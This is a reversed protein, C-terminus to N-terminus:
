ELIDGLDPSTPRRAPAQSPHCIVLDGDAFPSMRIQLISLSTDGSDARAKYLAARAKAPDSTQLLLGIPEDRATQLIVVLAERSLTM